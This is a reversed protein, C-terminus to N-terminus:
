FFHSFNTQNVKETLVMKLLDEPKEMKSDKLLVLYKLKRESPTTGPIGAMSWMM